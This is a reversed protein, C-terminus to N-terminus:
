LAQRKSNFFAIYEIYLDALFPAHQMLRKREELDPIEGHARENRQERLLTLLHKKTTVKNRDVCEIMLVLKSLDQATVPFTNREKARVLFSKIEHEFIKGLQFLGLDVNDITLAKVAREVQAHLDADQIDAIKPFHLPTETPVQSKLAIVVGQPTKEKVVQDQMRSLTYHFSGRDHCVKKKLM